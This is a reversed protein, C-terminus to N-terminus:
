VWRFWVFQIARDQPKYFAGNESIFFRGGAPRTWLLQAAIVDVIPSIGRVNERKEEPTYGYAIWPWIDGHCNAGFVAPWDWRERVQLQKFEEFQKRSIELTDDDLPKQELPVDNLGM